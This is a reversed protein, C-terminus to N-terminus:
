RIKIQKMARRIAAYDPVTRAVLAWFRPSHNFEALHCIEHVILYDQARSDLLLIRWNFSLNGRRSCSGWRTKQNRITVARFEFGYAANANFQAIKQRVLAQAAPKNRLYDIRTLRRPNPHSFFLQNMLINAVTAM